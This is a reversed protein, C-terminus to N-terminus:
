KPAVTLEGVEVKIVEVYTGAAIPVASKVKWDVGSMRHLSVQTPSIPTALLFSHGIFDGKVDKNGGSDQMRKLPKWLTFAFIVSLIAVSGFAFVLTEPLIGIYMLIGAVICALGIFVLILLSFGLVGVEIVLLAIGLVVLLSAFNDTLWTM